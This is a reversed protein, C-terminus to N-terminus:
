INLNRNGGSKLMRMGPEFILYLFYMLLCLVVGHSFLVTTPQSGMLKWLIFMVIVNLALYEPRNIRKSFVLDLVAIIVGISLSAVAVGINGFDAYMYAIYHANASGHLLHDKVEGDIRQLFVYNQVNFYTDGTVLLFLKNTGGGIYEHVAPFIDFYSLTRDFVEFSFRNLVKSGFYLLSELLPKDSYLYELIFPFLFVFLMAILLYKLKFKPNMYIYSIFVILFLMAVPAKAGSLSNNVCGLILMLLFLIFKKLSRFHYFRLFCVTVLFPVLVMRSFHWLYVMISSQLKYGSERANTLSEVNRSGFVELIPIKSLVLLQNIFIAVVVGLVITNLLTYNFNSAALYEDDIKRNPIIGRNFFLYVFLMGVGTFFSHLLIALMYSNIGVRAEINASPDILVLSLTPVLTAFYYLGPISLFRFSILKLYKIFFMAILLNVIFTILLMRTLWSRICTM